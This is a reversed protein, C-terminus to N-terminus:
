ASPDGHLRLLIMVGVSSVLRGCSLYHMCVAVNGYVCLGILSAYVCIIVGVCVCVGLKAEAASAVM